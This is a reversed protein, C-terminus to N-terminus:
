KETSRLNNYFLFFFLRSATSRAMVGPSLSRICVGSRRHWSSTLDKTPFSLICSSPVYSLVSRRFRNAQFCGRKHSILCFPIELGSMGLQRLNLCQRALTAMAVPSDPHIFLSYGLHIAGSALPSGPAWHSGQAPLPLIRGWSPLAPITRGPTAILKEVSFHHSCLLTVSYEITNQRM